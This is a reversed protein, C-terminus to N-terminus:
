QLPTRYAMGPLKCGAVGRILDDYEGAACSGEEARGSLAIFLACVKRINMETECKSRRVASAHCSRICYQSTTWFLRLIMLNKWSRVPCRLNAQPFSLVGCTKRYAEALESRPSHFSHRHRSVHHHVIVANGTDSHRLYDVCTANCQCSSNFDLVTVTHTISWQTCVPRWPETM